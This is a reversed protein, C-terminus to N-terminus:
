DHILRDVLVGGVATVTGAAMLAAVLAVVIRKRLPTEKLRARDASFNDIVERTLPFGAAM